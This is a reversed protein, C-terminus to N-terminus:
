FRISHKYPQGLGEAIYPHSSGLDKSFAWLKQELSQWAAAAVQLNQKKKKSKYKKQFNKKKRSEKGNM